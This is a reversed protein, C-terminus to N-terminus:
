IIIREKKVITMMVMKNAVLSVPLTLSVKFTLFMRMMRLMIMREMKVIPMMVMTDSDAGLSVPLASSVKM